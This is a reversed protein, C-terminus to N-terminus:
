TKNLYKNLIKAVTGGIVTCAIAEFVMSVLLIGVVIGFFIGLAEQAAGEGIFLAQFETSTGFFLVLLPVYIISNLVSALCATASYSWLKTKDRKSLIEFILGTLFGVLVRVGFNLLVTFLPNISLALAGLVSGTFCQIMSSIGFMAGLVAGGKRGWIMAGVSVPLMMISVGPPTLPLYGLKTVDLIFIIATLVAMQALMLTTGAKGSSIARGNTNNAM